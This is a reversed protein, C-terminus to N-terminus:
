CWPVPPLCTCTRLYDIRYDHGVTTAVVTVEPYGPAPAVPAPTPTARMFKSKNKRKRKKDKPLENALIENRRKSILLLRDRAQQERLIHPRTRAPAVESTNRSLKESSASSGAEWTDKAIKFLPEFTELAWDNAAAHGTELHCSRYLLRFADVAANKGLCVPEGDDESSMNGILADMIATMVAECNVVSLLLNHLEANRQPFTHRLVGLLATKLMSAGEQVDGTIGLDQQEIYYDPDAHHKRASVNVVINSWSKERLHPLQIPFTPVRIVRCLTARVHRYKQEKVSAAMPVRRSPLPRSVPPVSRTM